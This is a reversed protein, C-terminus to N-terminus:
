VLLHRVLNIVPEWCRPLSTLRRGYQWRLITFIMSALMLVCTILHQLIWQKDTTCSREKSSNLIMADNLYFHIKTLWCQVTTKTKKKKSGSLYLVVPLVYNVWNVKLSSDLKGALAKLLTTKGSGPAGLLLTMRVSLISFQIPWDLYIPLM